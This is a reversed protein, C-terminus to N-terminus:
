AAFIWVNSRNFFSFIDGTSPFPHMEISDKIKTERVRRRLLPSLTPTPKVYSHSAKLLM